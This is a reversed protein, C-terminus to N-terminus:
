QKKRASAIYVYVFARSSRLGSEYRLLYYKYTLDQFLRGKKKCIDYAEDVVPDVLGSDQLRKRSSKKFM